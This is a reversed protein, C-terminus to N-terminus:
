LLGASSSSASARGRLAAYVGHGGFRPLGLSYVGKGGRNLVHTYIMTTSVGRHGLLEQITRVRRYTEQEYTQRGIRPPIRACTSGPSTIGQSDHGATMSRWRSPPSAVAPIITGKQRALSETQTIELGTEPLDSRSLRDAIM